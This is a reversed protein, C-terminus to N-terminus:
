CEVTAKEKIQFRICRKKLGLGEPFLLKPCTFEETGDWVKYAEEPHPYNNIM